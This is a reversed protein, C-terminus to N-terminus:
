FWRGLITYIGRMNGFCSQGKSAHVGCARQIHGTTDPGLANAAFGKLGTLQSTPGGHIPSTKGACGVSARNSQSRPFKPALDVGQVRQQ